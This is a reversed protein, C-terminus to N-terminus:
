VPQRNSSGKVDTYTARTGDKKIANGDDIAVWTVAAIKFSHNYNEDDTDVVTFATVGDKTQISEFGVLSMDEFDNFVATYNPDFVPRTGTSLGSAGATLPLYLAGCLIMVSVIISTIRKM